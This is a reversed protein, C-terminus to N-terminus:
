TINTEFDYNFNEIDKQYVDFIADQTPKDYYEQYPRAPRHNINLLKINTGLKQNLKVWDKELKEYRGIFDVIIKNEETIKYWCPPPLTFPIGVLDFREIALRQTYPKFQNMYYKEDSASLKSIGIRQRYLSVWRSWPNRIFTFKFAKNWIEEGVRMRAETAYQHVDHTRPRGLAKGISTGACKRNHIFIIGDPLYQTGFLTGMCKPCSPGKFCITQNM